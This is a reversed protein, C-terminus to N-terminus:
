YFSISALLACPTPSCRAVELEMAMMAFQVLKMHLLMELGM